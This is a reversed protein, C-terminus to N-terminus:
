AARLRTPQLQDNYMANSRKIGKADAGYMLVISRVNNCKRM